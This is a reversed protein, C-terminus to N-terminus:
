EGPRDAELFSGRLRAIGEDGIGVADAVYRVVSSHKAEIGAMLRHLWAPDVSSIAKVAKPSLDMEAILRRMEEGERTRVHRDALMDSRAFDAAVTERPVGLAELLLATVLGTRDKGGRCHYLIARGEPLAVLERFVTRIGAIHDEPADFIGTLDWWDELEESTMAGAMFRETITRARDDDAMPAHVVRASEIDYPDLSREWGSRLDVVVEIGLRDLARRDAPTMDHLSASRYVRGPRVRRGDSTRIGGLDRFNPVGELRIPVTM